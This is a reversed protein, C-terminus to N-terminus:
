GITRGGVTFVGRRTLRAELWPRRNVRGITNTEQRDLARVRPMVITLEKQLVDQLKPAGGALAGVLKLALKLVLM